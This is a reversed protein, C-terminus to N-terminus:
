DKYRVCKWGKSELELARAEDECFGTISETETSPYIQELSDIFTEYALRDNDFDSLCYKPVVGYFSKCEVNCGACNEKCGVLCLLGIMLFYVYKNIPVITIPTTSYKKRIIM